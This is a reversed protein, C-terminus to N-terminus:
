FEIFNIRPDFGKVMLVGAFALFFYIWVGKDMREKYLFHSILITAIPSLYQLTVASALPMHHLSYFYALIAVTGLLGRIFLRKRDNGLPNIKRRYLIVLCFLMVIFQRWVVVEYFPLHTLAKVSAHALAFFLVALLMMQAGKRSAAM